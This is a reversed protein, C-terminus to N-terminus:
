DNPLEEEGILKPPFYETLKLQSATYLFEKEARRWSWPKIVDPLPEPLWDWGELNTVLLDRAETALMRADALTLVWEEREPLQFKRAIKTLISKELTKFEPFLAKVPAVIDGLYTEAADHLLRWSPSGPLNARSMRTCHEAVSYFTNCHGNFRCQLALAHAIDEIDIESLQLDHPYIHKGTYTRMCYYM